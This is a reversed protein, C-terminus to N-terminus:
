IATKDNKVEKLKETFAVILAETREIFVTKEEESAEKILEIVGAIEKYASAYAVKFSSKDSSEAPKAAAKKLEEIEQKMRSITQDQMTKEASLANLEKKVQEKEHNARLLENIKKDLKEKTKTDPVEKIVEKIVEKEAVQVDQPRSEFEKVSKELTAITSDKDKLKEELNKIRGELREQDEARHKCENKFRQAAANANEQEKRDLESEEKLKKNEEELMSLQEGQNKYSEVLAKLERTSMKEIDTSEMLEQRDEPNMQSLEALRTIGLRANAQVFDEGLKEYVSIYLYAQRRELDFEKKAYDEFNEYGLHTFLNEVKMRRLDKGIDCVATVALRGNAKIRETLMVAEQEPRISIGTEEPTETLELQKDEM